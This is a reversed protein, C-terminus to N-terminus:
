PTPRPPARPLPDFSDWAGGTYGPVENGRAYYAQLLAIADDRRDFALAPPLMLGAFPWWERDNM